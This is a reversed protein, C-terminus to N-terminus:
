RATKRLEGVLTRLWLERFAPECVLHRVLDARGRASRAYQTLREAEQLARRTAKGRDPAAAGERDAWRSRTFSATLKVQYNGLYSWALPELSVNLM